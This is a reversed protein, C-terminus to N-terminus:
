RRNLGIFFGVFLWILIVIFQFEQITQSGTIYADLWIGNDYLYKCIASFSIGAIGGVLIYGIINSIKSRRYM